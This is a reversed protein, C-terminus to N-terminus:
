NYHVCDEEYKYILCRQCSLLQFTMEWFLFLGCNKNNTIYHTKNAKFKFFMCFIGGIQKLCYPLFNQYNYAVM